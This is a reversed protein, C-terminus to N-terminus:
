VGAERHHAMWESVVLLTLYLVFYACIMLWFPVLDSGLWRLSLCVPILSIAPASGRLIESFSLGLRKMVLTQLSIRLTFLGVVSAVAAGTLGFVKTLAMTLPLVVVALNISSVRFVAAASGTGQLAEIAPGSFAYIMGSLSLIQVPVIIGLWRDDFILGVVQEAHLMLTLSFPFILLTLRRTMSTFIRRVELPEGQVRSFAPFMVKTLIGQIAGRLTETVLYAMSYLGLTAAGLLQAVIVNTANNRLYHSAKNGLMWLSSQALEALLAWSFRKRPRWSVCKWLVLSQVFATVLTQIALSWVGAGLSAALVASSSAAIMAVVEALVLPRFRLRRKLLVTPITATSEILIAFAMATAVRTIEPENYFWVMGPVLVFIFLLTCVSGLAIIAWFATHHRASTQRDRAKQILAHKLGLDAFINILGLFVLVMGILGFHEPALLRALVLRVPVAIGKGVILNIANWSIGNRLLRDRARLGESSTRTGM